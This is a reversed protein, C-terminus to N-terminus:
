GRRMVWDRHLDDGVQFTTEGIIEFGNRQYFAIARANAESVTLRVPGHLQELSRQVLLSAVGAGHHEVLVYCKSLEPIGDARAIQLPEPQHKILSFGIPVDKHLAVWLSVSPDTSMRLFDESQLNQAIYTAIETAPTQPPCALAFTRKAIESIAIHDASVARRVVYSM